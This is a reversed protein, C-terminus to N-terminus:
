NKICRLSYGKARTSNTLTANTSNISLFRSETLIVTSTWYYGLVSVGLVAGPNADSRRGSLTLKLPSSFAGISNNSTWTLREENLETETPVKYGLPCPNNTGIMGQWLNSNPPNRWDGMDNIIFNSTSPQDTSSLTTTTASNRCQHGDSRRGWQYLDGYALIDTLSTAVQAAGLNRDMWTKGTIPNTVDVIETPGSACFISAVPYQMGLANYNVQVSFTCTQGNMSVTFNATGATLTTGTITFIFNGSGNSILGPILTATLGTVGTSTYIQTTQFGGNGGTYALSISVGSTVQSGYVLGTQTASGCDISGVSAVTEKVCRVSRGSVREMTNVSAGSSLFYLGRSENSSVTNSWYSGRTGVDWFVGDNYNRRGAVPMKIPSNFAGLLTNASWSIREAELESETPVRYGSPCPNNVGSVGQWLNANQPNRWDFPTLPALIFNGNTPQDVSSLTTSTASNRCQHGDSRRGWQYLDGYANVDTSSTSVQAAGLNRDMWTKGTAANTVDVIATAGSACFVSGAPYQSAISQIFVTFSCIQGGINLAFSASGAGSPTGTVTYILSGSGSVVFGSALTATLGTVGTSPITQATYYGGNGGTYPVNISVGTAAQGSLLTGALTMGGCNLSGITALTEKICRVSFGGARYNGTMSAGTPSFNLYRSFIGSVTSSWYIGMTGVNGLLGTVDFRNGAMPMKLNSNMAGISTSPNWSLSETELETETPVRYGSPCPNNIGGVGQWLNANQPSRWDYPLATGRIFNGHAPQDVSSLTTIIASTRCQHGDSRRGWQYLDGYANVDTSSTAVQTAGLNRDMWTKGTTPNTVDVVASAGSACFVSGSPYQVATTQVVLSFACAQGGVSIAFSATGAASPIGTITYSVYGSGMALSQQSATASLGLVGTSTVTEGVFIGGNGGTYPVFSASSSATSGAYLFGSNVVSGCLLASNTGKGRKIQGGFLQAQSEFHGLGLFVM